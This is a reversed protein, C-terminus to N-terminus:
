KPATDAYYPHQLICDAREQAAKLIVEGLIKHNIIIGDAERTCSRCMGDEFCALLQKDDGQQNMPNEVTSSQTQDESKHRKPHHSRYIGNRLDHIISRCYEREQFLKKRITNEFSEQWSYHLLGVKIALSNFYNPIYFGNPFIEIIVSCPKMFAINTEGAGHVTIGIDTSQMLAVQQKFTLNEFYIGNNESNNKSNYGQLKENDIFDPTNLSGRLRTLLSASRSLNQKDNENYISHNANFEPLKDSNWSTVVDLPVKISSQDDDYLDIAGISKLFQLTAVENIIRRTGIRGILAVKIPLSVMKKAQNHYVCPNRKLIISTLLHSDSPHLFWSEQRAYSELFRVPAGTKQVICKPSQISQIGFHKDVIDVISRMWTHTALPVSWFSSHDGILLSHVCTHNWDEHLTTMNNHWSLSLQKQQYVRHQWLVASFYGFYAEAFHPIHHVMRSNGVSLFSTLCQAESTDEQTVSNSVNFDKWLQHVNLLRHFRNSVEQIDRKIWRDFCYPEDIDRLRGFYLRGKSHGTCINRNFAYVPPNLVNQGYLWYLGFISIALIVLGVISYPYKFMM